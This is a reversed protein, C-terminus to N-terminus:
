AGDKIGGVLASAFKNLEEVDGEIRLGEATQKMEWTHNGCSLQASVGRLVGRGVSQEGGLALDGTWLDKLAFLVLGIEWDKPERISLEVTVGGEKSGFLPRQDFLATELAGGTFRDISVRNQVLDFRGGQILHEAIRIRSAVLQNAKTQDNGGFLCNIRNDATAESSLTKLIKFCHARLAGALSTGSLIAQGDENLHEMEVDNGSMARILLSTKLTFCAKLTFVPKATDNKLKVGLASALDTTRTPPAQYGVLWHLVDEGKNMRYHQISWEAVCVRGFGRSKRKGIGIKGEALATLATVLEQKLNDPEDGECILLEFQLPFCTGRPLVQTSYLGKDTATRSKPDLKVGDRLSYGAEAYADNVILNSQHIDKSRAREAGFMKPEKFYARLAGAISAGPLLAQESHADRLLSMSSGDDDGSGLHTPTELVLDGQIVIRELIKRSSKPHWLHKDM